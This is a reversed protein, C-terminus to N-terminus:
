ATAAATVPSVSLRGFSGSAVGGAPLKAKILDVQAQVAAAQAEASLNYFNTNAAEADMFIRDANFRTIFDDETMKGLAFVKFAVDDSLGLTPIFRSRVLYRRMAEPDSAHTKRMIANQIRTIEDPRVGAEVAAKLQAYLDSESKLDLGDPFDYILSLGKGADVYTGCVMGHHVYTGSFWDAFPGLAVAKQDALDAIETATMPGSTKQLAQRGFVAAQVKDSIWDQFKLQFTPIDPSPGIFALMDTLKLKNETPDPSLPVKIVDSASKSIPEIGSGHCKPCRFDNPNTPSPNRCLGNACGGLAEIGTCPQTYELQRPMAMNRMVIQLEHGTKLELKLWNIARHLPSLFVLGRANQDPIYGLPSAPVRGAGHELVQYHYAIKDGNYVTGTAYEPGDPITHNGSNDVPWFDVAHDPLYTTYRHLTETNDASRIAYRATLSTVEGASRTFHVVASSPLLVPYPRAQQTRYDFADFATLLWANPDTLAVTQALHEALYDQLPRNNYYSSLAQTLRATWRAREAEGAAEDYVIKREVQGDRLRAVKYFQTALEGWASECTPVYLRFLRQLQEEAEGEWYTRLLPEVDGTAFRRCLDAYKVVRDYDPHWASPGALLIGSVLPISQDPTM